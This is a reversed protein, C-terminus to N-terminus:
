RSNTSKSRQTSGSFKEEVEQLIQELQTLESLLESWGTRWRDDLPESPQTITKATDNVRNCLRTLARLEESSTSLVLLTRPRDPPNEGNHRCILRSLKLVLRGIRSRAVYAAEEGSAVKRIKDIQLLCSHIERM